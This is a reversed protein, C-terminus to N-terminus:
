QMLTFPLVPAPGLLLFGLRMQGGEFTVPASLDPRGGSALTLGQVLLRAQDPPLLGAGEILTLLDAWNTVAVDLTGTARGLADPTLSGSVRLATEGWTLSLNTVDLATLAPPQTLQLPAAFGAVADLRLGELVQPMRGAPDIMAMTTAPLAIQALNAHLDYAHLDPTSALSPRLAGLLSAADIQWGEGSLGIGQGEIIAQDLPLTLDLGVHVSARLDANTMHLNQDRIQWDMERPFGAIVENPRYSLAFVQMWPMSVGSIGDPFTVVLDTATQDIRSPFGALKLDSYAVGYGAARANAIANQTAKEATNAAYFWYGGYAAACLCLGITAARLM